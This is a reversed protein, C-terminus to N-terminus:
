DSVLKVEGGPPGADAELSWTRSHRHCVIGIAAMIFGACGVVAAPTVLGCLSAQIFAGAAAGGNFAVLYLAIAKGRSRPASATQIAANLTGLALSFCAGASAMAAIGLPYSHGFGLVLLAVAFAFSAATVVSHRTYRSGIVSLMLAGTLSGFGYAALLRGYGNADVHFTQDALLTSLQVVPLGVISISLALTVGAAIGPTRLVHRLGEAPDRFADGATSSRNAHVFLLTVFAFAFSAADLAFALGAGWHTLILGAALPGLARAVQFTVLNLHVANPIAARPMMESAITHAAPMQLGVLASLAATLLLVTWPAASGSTWLIALGLATMFMLVHIVLLLQRRDRRDALYGGPVSMLTQPLLLALGAAGVWVPEHTMRFLVYPVVANHIWSGTRSVLGGLVFWRFDAHRFAPWGHM